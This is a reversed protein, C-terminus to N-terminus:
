AGPGAVPAGTNAEIRERDIGESEQAELEKIRSKRAKSRKGGFGLKGWFNRQLGEEELTDSFKRESAATGDLQRKIGSGLAMGMPGGYLAGGVQAVNGAMKGWDVKAPSSGLDKFGPSVGRKMQFGDSKKFKPM